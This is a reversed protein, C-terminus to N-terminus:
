EEERLYPRLHEKLEERGRHLRSRVTGVPLGRLRAIEEYSLQGTYYLVVAERFEPALHSLAQKVLDQREKAILHEPVRAGPDPVGEPLAGDRPDNRKRELRNLCLNYCIRYLWTSFRADGRFARIREYARLFTDQTLDEAEGRDGLLRVALTYLRDKHRLVLGNFAERNGACCEEVLAHDSDLGLLAAASQDGKNNKSRETSFKTGKGNTPRQEPVSHPTSAPLTRSPAANEKRRWDLSLYAREM